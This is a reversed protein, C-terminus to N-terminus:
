AVERMMDQNRRAFDLPPRKEEGHRDGGPRAAHENPMDIPEAPDIPVYLPAMGEFRDRDANQRVMQM